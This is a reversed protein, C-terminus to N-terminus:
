AAEHGRAAYMGFWAGVYVLVPLLLYDSGNVLAGLALSAPLIHAVIGTILLARGRIWSYTSAYCYIFYLLPVILLPYPADSPVLRVLVAWLATYGLAALVTLIRFAIRMAGDSLYDIESERM